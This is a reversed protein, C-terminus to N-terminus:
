GILAVAVALPAAALLFVGALGVRDLMKIM